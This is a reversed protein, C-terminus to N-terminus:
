RERLRALLRLIEMYLWVLTVLLGFAAYWEMYRPAGSAVGSEILDFDLLLNLAAFVIVALSIIIGIPSATFLFPVQVHFMGLVMSALYVLAIAGTGAYVIARFRETVRVLRLSYALLLAGLVGFTLGVAQIAIGPFRRELMASIGGIALGELAAYPVALYTALSANFSIIIALILGGFTGLVLSSGVSTADGNMVQSWPWLAGLMLVVLLLFSKNIAGQLTMREGVLARPQNRFARGLVPNGSENLQPPMSIELVM